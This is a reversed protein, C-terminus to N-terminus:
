DLLVILVSHLHVISVLYSYFIIYTQFKPRTDYIFYNTAKVYFDEFFIVRNMKYLSIWQKWNWALDSDSYFLTTINFMKYEYKKMNICKCWTLILHLLKPLPISSIWLCTPFKNLRATIILERSNIIWSHTSKFSLKSNAM